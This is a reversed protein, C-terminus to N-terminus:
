PFIVRCKLGAPLNHKPNPLTLRVGFTGSAADIVRDVITVIAFYQGDMPKEPIVKAKMGVKIVHYKDSPLILEVNLPDIQAVKLIPQNEVYEGPSMYREVVVGDITSRIELRNVIETAHKFDAEALARGTEVEDMDHAALLDKKFLPVLRDKKRDAFDKHAKKLEMTAKEVSSHLTALVQGVKVYDGRDVDVTKLVGVQPSGIRIVRYPEILGNAQFAETETVMLTFILAAFVYKMKM